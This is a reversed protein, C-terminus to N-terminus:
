HLVTTSDNVWVSFVPSSDVESGTPQVHAVSHAARPSGMPIKSHLNPQGSSGYISVTPLETPLESPQGSSGYISVTPLETPLETPQGSSEYISVTPLETPLPTPQGHAVWPFKAMCILSGVVEMYPFLPCSLPCGVVELHSFLPCSPPCHLPSGMPIKGHLYPQGSSGYVSITPLETHLETPLGSSELISITPLETPLGSFQGSFISAM